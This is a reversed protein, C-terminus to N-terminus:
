LTTSPVVLPGITRYVSVQFKLNCSAIIEFIDTFYTLTLGLDYNTCVIIPKLRQHKMSILGTTGPPIAAMKTMHGANHLHIKM